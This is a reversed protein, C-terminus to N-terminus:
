YKKPVACFPKSLFLLYEFHAWLVIFTVIPGITDRNKVIKPWAMSRSLAKHGEPNGMFFIFECQNMNIKRKPCSVSPIRPCPVSPDMYYYLKLGLQARTFIFETQNM